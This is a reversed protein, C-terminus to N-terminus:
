YWFFGDAIGQAVALQDEVMTKKSDAVSSAKIQDQKEFVFVEIVPEEYTMKM